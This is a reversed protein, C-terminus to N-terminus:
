TELNGQYRSCLSEFLEEVVENEDNYSIFKINDSRSLKTCEEEADKSFIFNIAITLQIKWTDSNQLDIIINRLYPKIKNLYDSDKINLIAVDSLNMSMMLLEDCRCCVNPQFKFGKNLFYWYHCIDCENLASTKNVDIGESVDIRDFHLKLFICVNM